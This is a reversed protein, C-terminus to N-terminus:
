YYETIIVIGNSGDGGERVTAQNYVIGGSGGLGFIESFTNGPSNIADNMSLFPFKPSWGPIGSHLPYGTYASVGTAKSGSLNLDGGTAVGGTGGDPTFTNGNILNARTGGGGGGAQVTGDVSTIVRSLGGSTGNTPAIDPGGGIGGQGAAGVTYTFTQNMNTIFKAAYAGGGGSLGLSCNTAALATNSNAGGGGGGAGVVEIYLARVGTPPTYKVSSGSTFYQINALAYIGPSELYGAFEALRITPTSM